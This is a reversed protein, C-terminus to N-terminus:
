HDLSALYHRARQGTRTGPFARALQRVQSLARDDGEFARRHAVFFSAALARERVADSRWSARGEARVARRAASRVVPEYGASMAASAVTWADLSAQIEVLQAEVLGVGALGVEAGAWSSDAAEPQSSRGGAQRLLLVLMLGTTLVCGLLVCRDVMQRRARSALSEVSLGQVTFLPASRDAHHLRELWDGDSAIEPQRAESSPRGTM